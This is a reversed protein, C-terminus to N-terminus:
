RYNDESELPSYIDPEGYKHTYLWGCWSEYEECVVVWKHRMFWASVCLYPSGSM